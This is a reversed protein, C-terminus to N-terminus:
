FAHDNDQIRESKNKIKKARVKIWIAFIAISLSMITMVFFFLTSGDTDFPSKALGALLTIMSVLIGIISSIKKIFLDSPKEISTPPLQCKYILPKINKFIDNTAELQNNNIATELDNILNLLGTHDDKKYKFDYILKEIEETYTTKQSIGLHRSKQLRLSVDQLLNIPNLIEVLSVQYEREVACLINNILDGTLSQKNIINGEIVDLLEDRARKIRENEASTLDKKQLKYFFYAVVAGVIISAISLVIEFWYTGIISILDM